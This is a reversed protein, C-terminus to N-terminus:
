VLVNLGTKNINIRLADYLYHLFSIKMVSERAKGFMALVM